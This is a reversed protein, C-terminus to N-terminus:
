SKSAAILEKATRSLKGVDIPKLFHADSAITRANKGGGDGGNSAAGADYSKTEFSLGSISIIPMDRLRSIAHSRFTEILRAGTADGSEGAGFVDTVLLDYHETGLLSELADAANHTVHTQHGDLEFWDALMMAQMPSDEM